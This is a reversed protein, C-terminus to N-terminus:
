SRSVRWKQVTHPEEQMKGEKKMELLSAPAAAVVAGVFAVSTTPGRTELRKLRLLHEKM